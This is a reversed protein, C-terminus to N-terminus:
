RRTIITALHDELTKEYDEVHVAGASWVLVAQVTSQRQLTGTRGPRTQQTKLLPKHRVYGIINIWSGSQLVDIKTTSLILNIDVTTRRPLEMETGHPYNHEITLHGTNDCYDVVCGLFRVKVNNEQKMLQHIFVHKSPSPGNSSGAAM